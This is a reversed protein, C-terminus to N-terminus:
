LNITLLQGFSRKYNVLTSSCTKLIKIRGSKDIEIGERKYMKLRKAQVQDPLWVKGGAYVIRHWPIAKQNPAKSLIGSISRSAMLGAGAMKAITGYTTVRGEPILTALEWVRQSFDNGM